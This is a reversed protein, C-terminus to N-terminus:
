RTKSNPFVHLISTIKDKHPKAIDEEDKILIELVENATKGDIYLPVKEKDGFQFIENENKWRKFEKFFISDIPILALERNKLKNLTDINSEASEIIAITKKLEKLDMKKIHLFLTMFLRKKVVEAKNLKYRIQLM